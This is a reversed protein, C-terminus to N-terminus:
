FSHVWIFQFLQHCLGPARLLIPLPFVTFLRKLKKGPDARPAPPFKLTLSQPLERNVVFIMVMVVIRGIAAVPFKQADIAMVIFM